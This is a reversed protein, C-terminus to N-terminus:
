FAPPDDIELTDALRKLEDGALFPIQVTIHDGESVELSSCHGAIAKRFADDAQMLVPAEEPAVACAYYRGPALSLQLSRQVLQYNTQSYQSGGATWTFV